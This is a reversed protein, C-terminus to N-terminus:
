REGVCVLDAFGWMLAGEECSMSDGCSNRIEAAVNRVVFHDDCHQTIVSVFGCLEQRERTEFPGEQRRRRPKAPVESESAENLKLVFNQRKKAM